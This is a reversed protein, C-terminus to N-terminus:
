STGVLGPLYWLVTSYLALGAHGYNALQFWDLTSDIRADLEAAARTDGIERLRALQRMAPYHWFLYRAWSSWFVIFLGVLILNCVPRYLAPTTFALATMAVILSTTIPALFAVAIASM